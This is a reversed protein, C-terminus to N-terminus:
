SGIRLYHNFRYSSARRIIYAYLVPSLSSSLVTKPLIPRIKPSLRAKSEEGSSPDSDGSDSAAPLQSFAKAQSSPTQPWRIRKASLCETSPGAWLPTQLESHSEGINRHTTPHPIKRPARAAPAPLTCHDELSIRPIASCRRPWSSPVGPCLLLQFCDSQDPSFFPALSM